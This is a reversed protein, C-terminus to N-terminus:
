LKFCGMLYMLLVFTIGNPIFCGQESSNSPKLKALYTGEKRTSSSVAYRLACNLINFCILSFVITMKREKVHLVLTTSRRLRDTVKRIFNKRSFVPEAFRVNANPGNIDIRWCSILWRGSSFLTRRPRAAYRFPLM